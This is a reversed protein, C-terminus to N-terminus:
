RRSEASPVPQHGGCSAPARRPAAIAQWLARRISPLLTVTHWQDPQPDREYGRETLGTHLGPLHKAGWILVTDRDTRDLGALAHADRQDMLVDDLPHPRPQQRAPAQSPPASASRRMGFTLILLHRAAGRRTVSQGLILNKNKLLKRMPEVGARRIIELHSLDIIEFDPPLPMGTRRYNLGDAQSVWGLVPNRKEEIRSSHELGTLLFLEDATTDTGDDLMRSGETHVVAGDARLRDIVKRLGAFYSPLGMHMTCVLTIRHGTQPHRYGRIPTQLHTDDILRLHEPM